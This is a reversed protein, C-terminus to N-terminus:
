FKPVGQRAAPCHVGAFDASEQFAQSERHPIAPRVVLTGNSDTDFREPASIKTWNM